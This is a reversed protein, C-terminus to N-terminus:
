GELAMVLLFALWCVVFLGALSLALHNKRPPRATPATKPDAQQATASDFSKNPRKSNKRASKTM